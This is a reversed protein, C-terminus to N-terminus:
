LKSFLEENLFEFAEKPRYIEGTRFLADTDNHFEIDSLKATLNNIFQKKTPIKVGSFEMYSTYCSLIKSPDPNVVVFAKYLDFLDRGKKRQYLARLKTGLLEELTYTQIQASGKFWRTDVSFENEIYGLISFHERCNIEVKLRMPIPPTSESNFRFIMTNNNFKQKIKPDGVFSLVKRLSDITSKIPGPNKQVLDIDESYRAHSSLYLKHLATGGRFALHESLYDDSFIEILSRCIVLDQEVQENSIWPATESWKIIENSPIM